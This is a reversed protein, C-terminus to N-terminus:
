PCIPTLLFAIKRQNKGKSRRNAITKGPIATPFKTQIRLEYEVRSGGSYRRVRFVDGVTFL